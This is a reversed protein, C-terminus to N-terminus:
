FPLDNEDIRINGSNQQQNFNTQQGFQNQQKQGFQNQPQQYGGYQNQQQPQYNTNSQRQSQNQANNSGESRSDLFGIRDAVVDTTFIRQGDKEYSGTQIRGTVSIQSGKKQYNALNEANKQFAICNIFDAEPQGEVKKGRNVAVTFRCTAVGSQTYKLELDRTLRGIINVSNM